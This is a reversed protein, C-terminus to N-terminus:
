PLTVDNHVTLEYHSNLTRFHTSGNESWVSVVPSTSIYRATYGETLPASFFLFCKDVVPMEFAEGEIQKTRLADNTSSHQTLTAKM